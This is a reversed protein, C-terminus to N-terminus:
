SPDPKLGENSISDAIWYSSGVMRFIPADGGIFM